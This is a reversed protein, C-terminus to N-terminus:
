EPVARGIALPPVPEVVAVPVPETTSSDDGTMYVGFRTVGIKVFLAVPFSIRIIPLAVM